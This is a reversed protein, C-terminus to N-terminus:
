RMECFLAPPRLDGPYQQWVWCSGDAEILYPREGPRYASGQKFFFAVVHRVCWDRTDRAWQMDFTRRKPGSEAEVIIQHLGRAWVDRWAVPGLAPGYSVFRVAAPIALLLPIRRDAFCQTEVSVGLWVNRPWPKLAGGWPVMRAVNEPRKTLLLWDLMTTAEILEWLKARATSPAEADFVDCMSGCFVRARQVTRLARRHWRLPAEWYAASMESRPAGKGWAAEPGFHRANLARAYCHACGPSVETCGWWPNFTHDTWAIGSNQAM